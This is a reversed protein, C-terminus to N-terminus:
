GIGNGFSRSVGSWTNGKSGQRGLLSTKLTIVKILLKFKFQMCKLNYLVESGHHAHDILGGEVMLFFGNEDSKNELYKIATTTMEELTPAKFDDTYQHEYPM